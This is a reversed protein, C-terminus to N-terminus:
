GERIHVGEGQEPESDQSLGSDRLISARREKFSESIQYWGESSEVAWQMSGKMGNLNQCGM